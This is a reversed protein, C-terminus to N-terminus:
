LAYGHEKYHDQLVRLTTPKFYLDREIPLGLHGRVKKLESLSFYGLEAEHGIALGFFIDEGDFETAYWTWGSDPTFFKVIAKAELGKDETAYLQPLQQRNTNTLLEM